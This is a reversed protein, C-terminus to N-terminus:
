ACEENEPSTVVDERCDGRALLLEQALCSTPSERLDESDSDACDRRHDADPEQEPGSAIRPVTLKKQPRRIRKPKAPSTHPRPPVSSKPIMPKTTTTIWMTSIAVAAKM